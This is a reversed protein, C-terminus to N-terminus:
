PIFEGRAEDDKWSRSCHKPRRCIWRTLARPSGTTSRLSCTTPKRVSARSSGCSGAVVYRGDTEQLVGSELIAKTLEEVFLPVGDTKEVIQALVEAPLRQGGTIRAVMLEIQTRTFRHLALPM